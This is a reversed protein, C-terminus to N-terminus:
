WPLVTELIVRNDRLKGRAPWMMQNGVCSDMSPLWRRPFFVFSKPVSFGCFFENGMCGIRSGSTASPPVISGQRRRFQRSVLGLFDLNRREVQTFSPQFRCLLTAHHGDAIQFILHPGLFSLQFNVRIVTDFYGWSAANHLSMAPRDLGCLLAVM